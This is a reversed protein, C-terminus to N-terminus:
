FGVTHGIGAAVVVLVREVGWLLPVLFGAIVYLLLGLTSTGGM